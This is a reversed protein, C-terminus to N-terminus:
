GDAVADVTAAVFAGAAVIGVAAAALTALETFAQIAVAVLWAIVAGQALTLSLFSRNV